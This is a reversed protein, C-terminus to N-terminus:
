NKNENHEILLKIFKIMQDFVENKNGKIDFIFSIVKDKYELKLRNYHPAEKFIFLGDQKKTNELDFTLKIKFGDLKNISEIGLRDAYAKMLKEKMYILLDDGPYGFRDNLEDILSNMDEENKILDIKKHIKIRIDDNNIYEKPITRNVIAAYQRLPKVEEKIEGDNEKIKKIEEDLIKLYMDIGITDIFGSQEEGLIDGSGRISLDRMAIKLGSGLENFEKITALRKEAEPTLMKRPEYMLYAYAIKSSRGVRGRIQYMQSLGLRDADHIILTNTDPMDIGTEIITTCILVDYEKDIYGSIIDELKDKTLKGHGICIRAEPVLSKIHAAVDEIDEVKNYLYFVQGGRALEREIADTIIRDNREIVYTQIPYRNKPPTEIMSLDKIGMMSMQLTRPIPTASLTICDINVKLEKIKEKHTVGFRQEEDIILLGLDKYTIENSLLRHTGVVVDIYGSKLDDIIKNQDKKSVFRSLMAVKVGYDEMRSKFTNYHQRVLITTPALVAVQKGGYVAKFAARLAVETKGYGVDGCILRDMPRSSEMDKKVDNVAKEQDPTLEYDFDNEFQLQEESDVPYNFGEANMRSAYLSILKESIDHVKKRARAKAKAWASDGITNIMVGETGATAYKMIQSIQELPVYLASKGGYMIHLMDRKIGGLDSTIIGLYEGVGYDYHVVYDGITLEDYRSIKQANKYISKYKAKNHPKNERDFIATQNIIMFDDDVLEFSPTNGKIYNIQGKSIKNADNIHVMLCDNEELLEVLKEKREENDLSIILKKTNKLSILDSAILKRNANYPVIDKSNIRIDFGGIDRVGEILINSSAEVYKYDKFIKLDCMSYGSMRGCADNLDLILRQYIEECKKPDILYIKKNDCFDFLSTNSDDFFCLYRSLVGLNKHFMLSEIDRKYMDDEIQSLEYNDLFSYIKDKAIEFEKDNYIFESVPLVNVYDLSAISRQTESDFHKITEIQNDFFDIRVPRDYGLPFIDLISGRRSFEGTNTVTYSNIYGIRLLSNCIDNIDYEKDKELKFSSLEWTEKKMEYKIAGHFNTIIIRKKKNALSCLTNIREFLFDGTASIMESSVLEDAPFFLVDDFDYVSQSIVDYYKQASYLTPLVVFISKDNSYFDSLILMQNYGDTSGGLKIKDSALINSERKMSAFYEYINM